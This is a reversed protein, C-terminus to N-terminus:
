NLTSLQSNLTPLETSSQLSPQSSITSYNLQCNLFTRCPCSHCSSMFAYLQLNGSNAATALSHSIFVCCAPFPKAPATTTQSTHFDAITNYTSTTGLPTHLHDIFGNVEGITVGRFRSLINYKLKFVKVTAAKRSFSFM